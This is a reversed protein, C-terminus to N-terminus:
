LSNKIGLIDRRIQVDKSALNTVKEVAHMVTTHDRGVVRGVEQLPMSLQTRLLYMLIQRPLAVPRARSTGLLAKKAVSFHLSVAKILEPATANIRQETDEGARGLLSKILAEDIDAKNLATETALRMLFGEIARASNINGAILQVLDMPLELRKQKAKIQIIACRLEFDPPSIDVILGAEFRSKLREELASIEGPPKDSTMIVQGGASILANFTHFFEEQVSRKGAIFQVDDVFLTKLKRYKNRVKQTTKNRIGEVIDNTFQEGSCFLIDAETDKRVITHGVAYMLHTKGVGVGGWIFLPNYTDGPNKSIAEAAAWAMQNTSSVAFNKFTFGRRINKASLRAEIEQKDKKTEAFLPSSDKSDDKVRQPAVDFTLDIKRDLVKSLADQILGFYRSELTTKIFASSCGVTAATRTKGPTAQLLNTRSFWTSFNAPSVSVKISELVNNWVTKLKKEQM